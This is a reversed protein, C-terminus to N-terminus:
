LIYGFSSATKRAPIKIPALSSISSSNDFLKLLEQSVCKTATLPNLIVIIIMNKHNKSLNKGTKIRVKIIQTDIINKTNNTQSLIGTTLAQIIHSIPYKIIIEPLFASLKVNSRNVANIM